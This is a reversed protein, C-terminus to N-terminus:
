RRRPPRAAAPRRRGRGARRCRGGRARWGQGRWRTGRVGSWRGPARGEGQVGAGSTPSGPQPASAAEKAPTAAPAFAAGEDCAQPARPARGGLSLPVTGAGIHRIVFGNDGVPPGIPVSDRDATGEERCTAPEKGPRTTPNKRARASPLPQNPPDRPNRARAHQPTRDQIRAQPDGGVHAPGGARRPARGRGAGRRQRGRRTHTRPSPPESTRPPRTDTRPRTPERAASRRNGRQAAFRNSPDRSRQCRHKGRRHPGSM